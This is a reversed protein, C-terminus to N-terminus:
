ISILHNIIIFLITFIKSSMKEPKYIEINELSSIIKVDDELSNNEFIYELIPLTTLTSSLHSLNNNITLELLREM